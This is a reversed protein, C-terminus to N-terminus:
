INYMDAIAVTYNNYRMIIIDLMPYACPGAEFYNYHHTFMFYFQVVIIIYLPFHPSISFVILPPLPIVICHCVHIYLVLVTIATWWSVGAGVCRDNYTM